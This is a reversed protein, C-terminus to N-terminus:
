WSLNKDDKTAIVSNMMEIVDDDKEDDNGDGEKDYDDNHQDDNEEDGIDNDMKEDDYDNRRVGWWQEEDNGRMTKHTRVEM